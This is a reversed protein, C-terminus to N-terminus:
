VVYKHHQYGNIDYGIYRISGTNLNLNLYFYLFLHLILGEMDSGNADVEMGYSLGIRHM